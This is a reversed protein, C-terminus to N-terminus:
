QLLTTLTIDQHNFNIWHLCKLPLTALLLQLHPRQQEIYTTYSSVHFATHGALM